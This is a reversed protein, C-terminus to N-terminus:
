TLDTFPNFAVEWLHGDPDAFYGSYGGWFVDRPPKVPRAGAAVAQAFVADAGAKSPVNHALTVGSFGSGAADVTADEALKCRPYLALWAGELAFFVIGEDDKYNRTPLGLGDRYFALSRELDRVGLTVISLRPKM